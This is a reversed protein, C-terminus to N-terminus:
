KADTDGNDVPNERTATQVRIRMDDDCPIIRIAGEAPCHYQCLGCGVCHAEGAVPVFAHKGRSLKVVDPIPCVEYCIRCPLGRYATCRTTEIQAIGMRVQGPESLPQLAGSPCAHTCKLGSCLVCPSELPDIYPTGAGIGESIPSIAQAPCAEMCSGCHTCISEFQAEMIAGPPRLVFAAENPDIKHIADSQDLPLLRKRAVPAIPNKSADSLVPPGPPLATASRRWFLLFRRRTFNKPKM